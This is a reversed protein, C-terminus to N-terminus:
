LALADGSSRASAEADTTAKTAYPNSASPTGSAGTLAAKQDSTPMNAQSPIEPVDPIDAMTAVVNTGSPANAGSLAAVQDATIGIATLMAASTKANEISADQEAWTHKGSKETAAM